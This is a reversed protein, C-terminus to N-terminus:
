QPPPPPLEGDQGPPPGFGPGRGGPGRFGGPGRRGPPGMPAYEDPTLQGDGNKDLTKLAAAANAIEAASIIGDGDADLAMILPPRPPLQGRGAGGPPGERPPADPAPGPANQATVYYASAGLAAVLALALTTKKM